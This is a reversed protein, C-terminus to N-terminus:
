PLVGAGDLSAVDFAAGDFSVVDFPGDLGGDM